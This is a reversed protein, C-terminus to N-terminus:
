SDKLAAKVISAYLEGGTPGPHIEDPGLLDTRKAIADHWDVLVAHKDHEVFSTLLANDPEEWQRDVFLNVFVLLRHPGAIKRLQALTGPTIFGNTGLGVLIVPRLGGSAQQQLVAPATYPQRSVAADIHIGPFAGLLGRAAALMVSDGIATIQSGKPARWNMAPRAPQPAPRPAPTPATPTTPAPHTIPVATATILDPLTEPAAMLASPAPVATDASAAQIATLGDDVQQQAATQSPAAACALLTATCAVALALAGVAIAPQNRRAPADAVRRYAQRFGGRLIPQEVFTFSLAAAAVTLALALAGPLWASVGADGPLATQALLLVPWHWLYLGYSREGIWRLPAWALATSVAGAGRSMAAVLAVALLTAFPTATALGAPDGGSLVALAALGALAVPAVASWIWRETRSADDRGSLAFALAGGALLGFAHSDSGYYARGSDGLVLAYLLMAGVSALAGATVVGVRAGRRRLLLIAVVLLPWLLYFQEEIALSWLNQFLPPASQAFYGNDQGILLWNSFFGAAALVQYGFHVTPDGAIVLAATGCCLVLLGLAPLLRRARRVWFRRLAGAALAGPRLLGGTILFGSLVFFVDVGIFGAPLAQPAYHFAIVAMVALARIGDFAGVRAPSAASRPATM